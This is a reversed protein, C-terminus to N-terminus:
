YSLHWLIKKKFYSAYYIASCGISISIENDKIFSIKFGSEKLQKIQEYSLMFHNDIDQEIFEDNLCKKVEQLTYDSDDEIYPSIPIDIYGRKVDIFPLGSCEFPTDVLLKMEAEICLSWMELQEEVAKKEAEAQLEKEIISDYSTLKAIEVYVSFTYNQANRAIFNKDKLKLIISSSLPYHETKGIDIQKNSYSDYDELKILDYWDNEQDFKLTLLISHGNSNVILVHESENKNIGIIDWTETNNFLGILDEPINASNNYRILIGSRNDRENLLNWINM